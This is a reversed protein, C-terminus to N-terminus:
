EFGNVFLVGIGTGHDARASGYAHDLSGLYEAVIETQGAQPFVLQCSFAVSNAGAATPTTDTCSQGSRARFEVRGNAPANAASVTASLTVAQGPLSPSPSLQLAVTTALGPRLLTVKNADAEGVVLQVRQPDFASAFQQDASLPTGLVAAAGHAIGVSRGDALGLNVAGVIEGSLRALPSDLLYHGGALGSFRSDGLRENADKGLLSNLPGIPGAAGAVLRTLAGVDARTGEDWEPSGVLVVGPALEEIGGNGIRDNARTGVLSNATSVIGAVGTAPALTVAGADIATGADYGTTLALYRGGTLPHFADGVADGASAGVLSNAVGVTGILGSGPAHTLAGADMVAGGAMPRDWHPSGILYAGNDLAGLWTGVRDGSRSGYLSNAQTLEGIVGNAGNAWTVAGVDAAGPLDYEPSAIVYNGAGVELLGSGVRDGSRAGMLSNGAFITGFLGTNGNAITAAGADVIEGRDWLPSAIVYNGGSLALAYRGVEDNSRTGVLSNGNFVNGTRGAAPVFTAAGARSSVGFAWRPSLVVFNGNALPLLGEGVRDGAQIGVLATSPSITGATGPPGIVAAGADVLAGGASPRDWQPATIGFGGDAKVVFTGPGGVRDNATSGVLSNAPGAVGTAGLPGSGHTVAGADAAAGNDWQPSRVLYHSGGGVLAAGGFEGPRVIGASCIRDGASAGVLANAASLTGTRGTTGSVLTAAGVSAATASSWESACVVYDGSELPYVQGVRDGARTGVLSNAASVVGRVGAQGDGFTVAGADQASGNDWLSSVLVYHGNELLHVGNGVRDGARSGVLSNDAGVHGELGSDGDVFTVAGAALASGNRWEPSLVLFDGGPLVVIGGSGIRDGDLTGRLTSVRSGDPRYLHVKGGQDLFVDFAMPDAVVINGNPLVAVSEGFRVSGFPRALALQASSAQAAALAALLGLSLASHLPKM